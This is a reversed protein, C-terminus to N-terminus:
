AAALAAPKEERVSPTRRDLLRNLWRQAPVEVMRYSFWALALVLGVYSMTLAEGLFTAGWGGDFPAHRHGLRWVNLFAYRVVSHIMYISFSLTGLWQCVRSHLLKEVWGGRHKVMVWIFAAFLFPAVLTVPTKYTPGAILALIVAALLAKLWDRSAPSVPTTSSAYLHRVIVGMGFGLVCRFFGYDTEVSLFAGRTCTALVILSVLQLSVLGVWFLIKRARGMAVLVAFLLYTYFEVSISWSPGNWTVDPFLGMAQVLVLHSLFASLNNTDFPANNVNVELKGFFKFKIIEYALAAFLMLLHLPYLRAFRRGMFTAVSMGSSIKGFYAHAIVFGSLVFFFDVWLSTNHFSPLGAIASPWRIHGVMVSFAAIGRLGDLHDFRPRNATVTSVPNM